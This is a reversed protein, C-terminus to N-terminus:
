LESNKLIHYKERQYKRRIPDGNGFNKSGFTSTQHDCNPCIIRLNTYTWNEHHGDIHDLVLPVKQGMWESTGCIECKHGKTEIIYRKITRVDVSKKSSNKGKEIKEKTTKKSFENKCLMSCFYKNHTEKQCNICHKLKKPNGDGGLKLSVKKNIEKRKLKTSFGRACRSSCFRGSGYEGNHEKNCNDCKM